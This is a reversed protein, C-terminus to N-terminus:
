LVRQVKYHFEVIQHYIAQFEPAVEHEIQALLSSHRIEMLTGDNFTLSSDDLAGIVLKAIDRVQKRGTAFVSIQFQGDCLYSITGLLDSVSMFETTEGLEVIVLWPPAPQGEAFDMWIKTQGAIATDENLATILSPTARLRTIVSSYLDAAIPM